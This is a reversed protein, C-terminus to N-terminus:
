GIMRWIIYGVIIITPITLFGVLMAIEPSM